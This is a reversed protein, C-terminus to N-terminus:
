KEGTEGGGRRAARWGAKDQPFSPSLSLFLPTDVTPRAAKTVPLVVLLAAGALNLRWRRPNDRKGEQQPVRPINKQPPPLLCPTNYRRHKRRGLSAVLEYLTACRAQDEASRPRRSELWPHSDQRSRCRPRVYQTRHIGPHAAPSAAHKTYTYYPCFPTRGMHFLIYKQHGSYTTRRRARCRCPTSSLQVVLDSIAVLPRGERPTKPDFM